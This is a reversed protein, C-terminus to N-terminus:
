RSRRSGHRALRRLAQSVGPDAIEAATTRLVEANDASLTLQHAPSQVETRPATVRVQLRTLSLGHRGNIDKLVAKQRYRIQVVWASSDTLVRLTASRYGVVWCHDIAGQPLHAQLAETLTQLAQLRQLLRTGLLQHARQTDRQRDGRRHAM